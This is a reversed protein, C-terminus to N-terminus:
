CNDPTADVPRGAAAPGEGAEAEDEDEGPLDVASAARALALSLFSAGAAQALGLPGLPRCGFAHSLGPTQVIGLLIGLAGLSAIQVPRAHGSTDLAHAMQSGVLALLGVTDAGRRDGLTRATTWALAGAAGTAVGQVLIERNLRAGLSAEPGEGLLTEPDLRSPPRVAIALAPATDTLLNVLLLQRPNLPSRGTILGGVVTHLIEGVNGGVLLAVADRVARWLARGELLADLIAEIREDPVVLDAANRAAATSREGVAIGVDALRIAQADNAGDGTMAVTAGSEQLAEVIALKQYPTVRAFVSVESLRTEREQESMSDLEDGTLVGRSVDLGLEEAIAAATRPHDGTIMLVRIGAKHLDAVASRATPRAPDALGVFGLFTLEAVTEATLEEPADRREAIALVRLGRGAMRDATELLRARDEESIAREELDPGLCRLARPLLKEPAGKLAILRAGSIERLSAHFGREPEFPLEAVEVAAVPNPADIAEAAEVLARDTPHPLPGEDDPTPTAMLAVDLVRRHSEGLGDPLASSYGDSVASLSIRGETLTGTKDACLVDVRGLAELARPNRALIGRRRLRDAASLQALSALLPLGEPIAAVALSVGAGVVERPDQNRSIGTAMIILGSLAALPATLETLRELRVEVGSPRRRGSAAAGREAETEAGVATVVAVAEGAAVVTGEYLMCRRDAVMRAHSAETRKAVPLSEGTLTSEDVELRECELIRADAPIVEGAELEFIDGVVVEAADVELLRGGRRVMVRRREVRDLVSLAQDIRHREAVGIATNFAVVGAIIAADLPAGTLASLGAGTALLPTFPNTLEEVVLKYVRQRSSPEPATEVHRRGAESESLGSPTSDVRALVDEAEMAHWPTVKVSAEPLEVTGALRYANIISAASAGAAAAMVRRVTSSRLGGVSLVLGTAGQAFSIQVSQESCARAAPIAEIVMRVQPMGRPCLLDSGWPPPLPSRSLGVVFDAVALGAGPRDTLLMTVRGEAQLSRISAALRDGGPLVRDPRLWAVEARRDTAIVVALDAGRADHVLAELEAELEDHGNGGPAPGLVRGDIVLADVRDLVVMAEHEMVLVSREALRRALAHVFAQRGHHAPRPIGGFLSAAAREMRHTSTFGLGFGSVAGFVAKAAYREVPGDPMPERRRHHWRMVPDGATMHRLPSDCLEEELRDWLDIRAEFARVRLTRGMLDVVPGGVGQVLASAAANGVSLGLDTLAEGLHDVLYARAEPIGDLSALMAALDIEIPKPLKGMARGAVAAGFSVVDVASELAAREISELHAPHPRRTAFSHDSLGFRHEVREVARVLSRTPLNVDSGVILHGLTGNLKVWEVGRIAGLQTELRQAFARREEPLPLRVELQALGGRRRM